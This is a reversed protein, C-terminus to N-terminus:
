RLLGASPAAICRGLDALPAPLLRWGCDGVARLSAQRPPTGAQRSRGVLDLHPSGLGQTLLALMEAPPLSRVRAAALELALPLGDLATVLAAVADANGPHLHFDPRVARARDVFLAVAPQRALTEPALSAGPLLNLPPPGFEVLGDVALARRSTVLVRLLPSAQLWRGLLADADAPLQEFNDLVLWGDTAALREPLTWGPDPPPALAAAVAAEMAASDTCAALDAFHVPLGAPLSRMLEVACRTKGAGGPGLLVLAPVADLAARLRSLAIDDAFYRSLYRPLAGRRPRSLDLAAAPPVVAGPAAAPPETLRESLRDHLAQLRLREDSVWDDYFGPLLEGAYLASADADRRGSLLREFDHADCGLTGPLLRLAHRDAQLVPPAGPPELLARLTSLVQRLRNRGVDAAVGPWLLEVLEERPHARRPWLALRALLLLAARSPWRRLESGPGGELTAGGLLRLYWRLPTGPAHPSVAPAAPPTM